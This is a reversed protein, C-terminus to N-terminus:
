LSNAWTDETVILIPIGDRKYAMAKEIKTGFSGNKWEQSGLSGVVLYHLKKTIANGVAGGRKEIEAGCRNRPAFAFEGTLCFNLGAFHIREVPDFALGTVHTNEALDELRGGILTQLTEVLHAREEDTVVGDALTAKVRAHLIDGPWANALLENNTLWDNLFAVESDSLHQDCILGTAIGLLAGLSRRLDNQFGAHQRTFFNSM